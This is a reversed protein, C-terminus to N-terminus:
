NVCVYISLPLRVTGTHPDCLLGGNCWGTLCTPGSTVNFNCDRRGQYTNLEASSVLLVSPQVCGYEVQQGITQCPLPSLPLRLLKGALDSEALAPARSRLLVYGTAFDPVATGQTLDTFM